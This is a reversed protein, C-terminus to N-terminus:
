DVDLMYADIAGAARVADPPVRIAFAFDFHTAAAYLHQVSAHSIARRAQEVKDAVGKSLGLGAGFAIFAFFAVFAFRSFLILLTPNPNTLQSM